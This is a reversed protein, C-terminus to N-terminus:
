SDRPSPSTYLLCNYSRIIELVKEPNKHASAVFVEFGVELKELSSTIKEAHGRDSDSGMILVAKM